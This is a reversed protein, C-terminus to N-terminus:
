YTVTVNVTDAYGAGAPVFQGAPIRGYVTLAQALGTGTGSVWSPATNGWNSTRGTDSFLAYNLLNAGSAMQRTTVSAGNAGQDLGVTYAAGTSCTVTITATGDLQAATYSGFALPTATVTCVATVTASVGLTTTATQAAALGPLAALAAAAAIRSITSQMSDTGEKVDRGAAAGM